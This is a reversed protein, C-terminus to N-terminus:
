YTNNVILIELVSGPIFFFAYIYMMMTIDRRWCQDTQGEPLGDRDDMAGPLDEHSWGTDACFQQIYTRALRGAKVRWHSPTRLLLNRILKDGNRWCLGAHRTQRVKITKTIFPQHGYLWQITPHQRWDYM